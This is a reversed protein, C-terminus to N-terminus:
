VHARGIQDSAADLEAQVKPIEDALFEAGPVLRVYYVSRGTIPSRAKFREFVKGMPSNKANPSVLWGATSPNLRAAVTMKELLVAMQLPLGGRDRIVKVGHCIALSGYGGPLDYGNFSLKDM